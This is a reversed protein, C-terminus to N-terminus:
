ASLEMKAAITRQIENSGGYISLKRYNFYRSAAAASEPMGIPTDTYNEDLAEHIYPLGYPGQARRTLSSLEQRIETGKIKLMSSRAGVDHGDAVAALVRLNTTKLNELDIEVRAMRAAFLPDQALPKGNKMAQNAAAKLRNLAAIAYGVGAITTREHTLMYKACDWGKHEEGVLNEVPVKVDVFFVENVEHEGDLTTIPRVEVGPSDMDILLFSISEQPKADRKTRVLCFIMNSYQGYTTWTKQGNVVYHEGDRVASTKVSALDSGAGPESFGQCWWDEGSLIRPLWHHKQEENGFKILVPGLLTLGFPQIRPAFAQACESDFIFKEVTGWGTGGYESPWITALWGRKNLLAHWYEFDAKDLRKGELEKHKLGDLEKQSLFERVEAQFALEEPTFNLDM